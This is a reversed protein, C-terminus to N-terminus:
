HHPLEGDPIVDIQGATAELFSGVVGLLGNVGPHDGTLPHPGRLHFVFDDTFLKALTDHDQDFIAGTMRTVTEVNPHDTTM